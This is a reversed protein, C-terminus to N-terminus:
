FGLMGKMGKKLADKGKEAAANRAAEKMQKKMEEMMMKRDFNQQYSKWESSNVKKYGKPIDFLSAAIDGSKVSKVAMDHAAGKSSAEYGMLVGPAASAGSFGMAKAQAAYFESAAKLKKDESVWARGNLDKGSFEYEDSPLGAIKKTKGTKRYKLGSPYASDPVLSSGSKMAKRLEDFTFECYGSRSPMLMWVVKKDLRTIIVSEQTSRGKKEPHQYNVQMQLRAMEPEIYHTFSTKNSGGEYKTEARSTMTVGSHLPGASALLVAAALTKLFINNM